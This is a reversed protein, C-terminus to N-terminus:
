SLLLKAEDETIGLKTLLAAKDAAKQAAAELEVQALESLGSEIQAKSLVPKDFKVWTITDLDDGFFGYEAAPDYNEVVKRVQGSFLVLDKV